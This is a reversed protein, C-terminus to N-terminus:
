VINVWIIPIDNPITKKNKINSMGMGILYQNINDINTFIM